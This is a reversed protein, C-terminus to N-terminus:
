LVPWYRTHRLEGTKKLLGKKVLDQLDRTATARSTKTINLYNEHSLGGKFGKPGESLVRLLVKEQRENLKQTAKSLFRSKKLLFDLLEMSRGQAEVILSAFFEVWPTIELTKNCRELAGYYDKRQQNILPSITILTPRKLHKSLFKEVLARGIRGNGDEFPHISEFYVHLLSARALLEGGREENFLAIFRQMEEFVRSSPPAEFYVKSSSHRNSVIQMPDEHSRYAGGQENLLLSSWQYLMEHSLPKDFDEYVCLMLEATAQEKPLIRQEDCSLGFHRQLSVLLNERNLFEGEIAASESGEQSLLEVLFTKQEQDSLHKLVAFTGGAGQLFLEELQLLGEKEYSFKPWDKLQWNWM